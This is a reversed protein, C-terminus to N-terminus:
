VRNANTVFTAQAQNACVPSACTLFLVRAIACHSLSISVTRTHTKICKACTSPLKQSALTHIHTHKYTHGSRANLVIKAAFFCLFRPFVGMSRIDNKVKLLSLNNEYPLMCVCSNRHKPANVTHWVKSRVEYSHVSALVNTKTRYREFIM